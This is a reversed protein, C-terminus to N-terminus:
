NLNVNVINKFQHTQIILKGKREINLRGIRKYIKQLYFDNLHDIAVNEFNLTSKIIVLSAYKLLDKTEREKLSDHSICFIKM